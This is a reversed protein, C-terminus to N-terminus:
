SGFYPHHLFSEKNHNQQKPSLLFQIHTKYLNPKPSLSEIPKKHGMTQNGIELIEFEIDCTNDESSTSESGTDRSRNKSEAGSEEVNVTFKGSIRHLVGSKFELVPENLNYIISPLDSLYRGFRYQM